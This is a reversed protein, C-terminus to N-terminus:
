PALIVSVSAGGIVGFYQPNFPGLVLDAPTATGGGSVACQLECMIRIYKTQRNFAASSLVGATIDLVPQNVLSPLTPFPAQGNMALVSFESIWVRSAARADTAFLALLAVALLAIRRSFM